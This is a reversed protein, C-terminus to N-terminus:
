RGVYDGLLLLLLFTGLFFVSNNKLTWVICMALAQGDMMVVVQETRHRLLRPRAFDLVYGGPHRIHIPIRRLM